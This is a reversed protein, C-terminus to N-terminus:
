GIRFANSVININYTTTTISSTIRGSVYLNTPVTALPMIISIPFIQTFTYNMTATSNANYSITNTPVYQDLNTSLLNITAGTISGSTTFGRHTSLTPNSGSGLSIPTYLKLITASINSATTSVGSSNKCNLIVSENAVSSNINLGSSTYSLNEM